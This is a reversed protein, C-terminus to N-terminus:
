GGVKVTSQKDVVTKAGCKRLDNNRHVPKGYCNVTGSGTDTNVLPVVHGLLDPEAETEVVIVPIKNIKVTRPSADKNAILYGEGHENPDGEIAWLEGAM